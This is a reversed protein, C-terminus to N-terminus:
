EANAKLDIKDLIEVPDSLTIVDALGIGSPSKATAEIKLTGPQAVFRAIAATLAKGAESPGLISSLGLTAMLVYQRRVDDPKAGSKRAENEILKEFVGLNRLTATVNRATAGLAAVQALATDSSFLDRTVNGVTASGEFLAMGAGRLSLTRLAIENRAENWALDLKGSLDLARYGMAILDAAAPNQSSEVVPVSLRDITLSLTTPIGNIQQGAAIEFNGLGIKMGPSAPARRRAPTEPTEIAIGSARMTGLTPILTRFDIDDPSLDPQSLLARLGQIVPTLSFGSYAIREFSGKAGGGSFSFGELGFGSGGPADSGYSLRGIRMDVAVAPEYQTAPTRVTMVMDRAEGHGYDLTEALSLMTLGMRKDAAKEADSRAGGVSKKREAAKEAEEALTVLRSLVEGLPESGVKAAFRGGASRGLTVKGAAGMDLDYGDQEFRDILPRFPEDAGAAAKETLVRALHRTDFGEFLIRKMNGTMPGNKGGEVAITGGTSEIRGIRGERVDGILLDRYVTIQKQPGFQQTVVIEPARIEAASLRSTRTVASESSNQSLIALFQERELPSGKVALKPATIVVGGLDFRMDTIEFDAASATSVLWLALVAGLPTAFRFDARM